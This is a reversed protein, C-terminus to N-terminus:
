SILLVIWYMWVVFFGVLLIVSSLVLTDTPIVIGENLLKRIYREENKYAGDNWYNNWFKNHVPVDVRLFNNTIIPLQYPFAACSKRTLLDISKEVLSFDKGQARIHITEGKTKIFDRLIQATFKRIKTRKLKEKRFDSNSYLAVLVAAWTGAAKAIDITFKWDM